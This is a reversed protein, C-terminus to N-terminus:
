RSKERIWFLLDSLRRTGAPANSAASALAHGNQYVPEPQAVM